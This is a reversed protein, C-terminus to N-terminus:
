LFQSEGYKIHIHTNEKKKKKNRSLLNNSHAKMQM